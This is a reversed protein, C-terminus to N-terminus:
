WHQGWKNWESPPHDHRLHCFYIQLFGCKFIYITHCFKSFIPFALDPSKPRTEILKTREPDAIVVLHRRGFQLLFNPFHSDLTLWLSLLSPSIEIKLPYCWTRGPFVFGTIPFKIDSGKVYDRRQSLWSLGGWRERGDSGADESSGLQTTRLTIGARQWM